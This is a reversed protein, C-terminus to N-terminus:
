RFHRFIVKLLEKVEDSNMDWNLDRAYKQVLFEVAEDFTSHEEVEKLSQDLSENNGDFLEQVFMYKQNMSLSSLIDQNLEESLQEPEQEMEVEQSESPEDIDSEENDESEEETDGDVGEEMEDQPEEPDQSEVLETDVQQDDPEESDESPYDDVPDDQMSVDPQEAYDPIIFDKKELVLTESLGIVLQDIIEDKDIKGFFESSQDIALQAPQNEMLNLFTHFDSKYFVLYKTFQKIAKAKLPLRLRTEMEEHLYEQPEVALTFLKEISDVLLPRLDKGEIHIHQSLENMFQVMNRRVDANKYDFYPSELHKMEEQWAMFLTKLVLLNLQKLTTLQLLDKGSLYTKSEYAKAILQDAYVSKYQQVYERNLKGIKM